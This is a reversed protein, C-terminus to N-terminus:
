RYLNTLAISALQKGSCACNFLTNFSRDHWLLTCIIYWIDDPLYAMKDPPQPQHIHSLISSVISQHIPHHNTDSRFRIHHFM